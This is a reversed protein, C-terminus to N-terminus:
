ECAIKFICNSSRVESAYERAKGPAWWNKKPLRYPRSESYKIERGELIEPGRSFVQNVPTKSVPHEWLRRDDLGSLFHLPCNLPHSIFPHKQFWFSKASVLCSEHSVPRPHTHTCVHARWRVAGRQERSSLIMRWEWNLKSRKSNWHEQNQITVRICRWAHFPHNALKETGRLETSLWIDLNQM